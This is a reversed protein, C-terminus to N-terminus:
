DSGPAPHATTSTTPRPLLVSLSTFPNRISSAPRDLDSYQLRRPYSYTIRYNEQWM